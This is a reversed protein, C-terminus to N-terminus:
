TREDLLKELRIRTIKRQEEAAIWLEAVPDNHMRRELMAMMEEASKGTACVIFIYGFKEEYRRNAEAFATLTPASASAVGAQERAAWSRTSGTGAESIGEDAAGLNGIRPHHSFAERWDSAGLARAADEAAAFLHERDRYPRHSCMNEVWVSAGCCRSLTAMAEPKPLQNLDDLTMPKPLLIAPFKDRWLPRTIESEPYCLIRFKPADPPKREM